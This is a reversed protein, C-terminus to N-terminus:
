PNLKSLLALANRVENEASQENGGNGHILHSVELALAQLADRLEPAAAILRANAM